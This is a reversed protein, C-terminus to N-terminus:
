PEELSTNKIPEIRVVWQAPIAQALWASVDFATDLATAADHAQILTTGAMCNSVFAATAATVPTANARFGDRAILLCSQEHQPANFPAAALVAHRFLALDYTLRLVALSPHLVMRLTSPDQALLALTSLDAPVDAADQCRNMADDFRALEPLFPLADRVGGPNEAAIWDGFAAGYQSWDGRQPPHALWHLRALPAFDDEGLLAYVAPFMITMARVANASGNNRYAALGHEFPACAGALSASRHFLAQLLANQHAAEVASM